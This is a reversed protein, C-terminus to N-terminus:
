SSDHIFRDNFVMDAHALARLYLTVRPVWRSTELQMRTTRVAIVMAARLVNDKHKDVLQEAEVTLVASLSQFLGPLLRRIYM